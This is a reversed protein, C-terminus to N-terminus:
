QIFGLENDRQRGNDEDDQGDKRDHPVRRLLDAARLKLREQAVATDLLDHFFLADVQQPSLLSTETDRLGLHRGAREVLDGHARFLPARDQKGHDGKQEEDPDNGDQQPVPYFVTGRM